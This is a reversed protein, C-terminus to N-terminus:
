PLFTLSKDENSNTDEVDVDNNPMDVVSSDIEDSIEPAVMDTTNATETAAEDTTTTEEAIEEDVETLGEVPEPVAEEEVAEEIPTM